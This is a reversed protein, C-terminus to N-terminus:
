RPRTRRRKAAPVSSPAGGPPLLLRVADAGRIREGSFTTAYLVAETATPPLELERSRFHLLLDFFGDHNFDGRATLPVGWGRRVVPAGALTVTAPDVSAPDFTESGLIAVPVTGASSLNITNKPDGPRIDIAIPLFPSFAENTGVAHAERVIGGFAYITDDVTGAALATRATPMPVETIWSDTQPDYVELASQILETTLPALIGGMVYLRGNIVGAAVGGRGTPMPVKTDWSDTEPDYVQLTAPTEVGGHGISRTGGAVYILRNVVGVAMCCRATPMPSKTTWTDTKPDYAEVVAHNTNNFAITVGGIAYLIGDVVAVELLQRPTPMPARTSWTNTKPNFAQNARAGFPFDPCGVVYIIGDIVGAAAKSCPSPMPPEAVWTDTRPDYAEVTALAQGSPFSEGGMVYVLGGVVAVSVSSRPTPM